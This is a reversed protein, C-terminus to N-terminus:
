TSYEEQGKSSTWGYIKVHHILETEGETNQAENTLERGGWDETMLNDHELERNKIKNRIKELSNILVDLGKEDAHIFVTEANKDKEFTLLCKDKM